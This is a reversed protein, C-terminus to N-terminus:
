STQLHLSWEGDWIVERAAQARGLAASLPEQDTPNGSLLFM